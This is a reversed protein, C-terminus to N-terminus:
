EIIEWYGGKQPGVYRLKGQNGLKKAAREVASTSKGIRVAVEALTIGSDESLVVLVADPTKVQTKRLEVVLGGSREFIL